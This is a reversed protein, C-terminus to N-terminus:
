RGDRDGHSTIDGVITEITGNMGLTAGGSRLHVRLSAAIKAINTCDEFTRTREHLRPISLDHCLVWKTDSGPRRSFLSTPPRLTQRIRPKTNEVRIEVPSLSIACFVGWVHWKTGCFRPFESRPRFDAKSDRATIGLPNRQVRWAHM